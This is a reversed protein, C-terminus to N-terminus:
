KFRKISRRLVDDPSTTEPVGALALATGMLEVVWGTKSVPPLKGFRQAYRWVFNRGIIDARRTVPNRAASNGRPPKERELAERAADRLGMLERLLKTPYAPDDATADFPGGSAGAVSRWHQLSQVLPWNFARTELDQGAEHELGLPLLARLAVTLARDVTRLEGAIQTPTREAYEVSEARAVSQALALM